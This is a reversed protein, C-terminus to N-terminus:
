RQIRRMVYITPATGPTGPDLTATWEDPSVQTFTYGGRSGPRAFSIRTATVETASAASNASRNQVAGDRWAITSSDSVVQFTSDTSSRMQITSDNVSRYEEFFAPYAGGSGRWTGNLWSLQQFQAKSVRAGAAGGAENGRCATAAAISIVVWVFRRFPIM